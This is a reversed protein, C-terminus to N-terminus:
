CMTEKAGKSKIGGELVDREWCKGEECKPRSVIELLLM